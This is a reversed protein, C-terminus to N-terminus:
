FCGVSLMMVNDSLKSMKFVFMIVVNREVVLVFFDKLGWNRLVLCMYSIVVFVVSVVSLILIVVKMELCLDCKVRMDILMMISVLGMEIIM